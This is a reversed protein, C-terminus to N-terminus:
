QCVLGNIGALRTWQRTSNGAPGGSFNSGTAGNYSFNLTNCDAFSFSMTGWANRTVPPTFNGAFGGGTIYQVAANIVQYSNTAGASQTQTPLPVTANTALWFPLGLNDFTYWTAAFTRTAHDGNDYVEILMGEGGHTHDYWPGSVYGSIEMPNSASPYNNFSAPNYVPVNITGTIEVGHSDQLLTDISLAFAQNYNFPSTPSGANAAYIELVYVNVDNYIPSFPLTDSFFTNPDNPSRPYLSGNGNFTNLSPFIPYVSGNNQSGQPRDIELLVASFGGSCPVRWVTYLDTETLDYMNTVPDFIPTTLQLQQANPDSGSAFQPLNDALCSPPYARKPNAFGYKGAITGAKGVAATSTRIQASTTVLGSRHAALAAQLAARNLSPTQASDVAHVSGPAGLVLAGFGACLGFILASNAM